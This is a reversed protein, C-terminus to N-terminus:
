LPQLFICGLKVLQFLYSILSDWYQTFRWLPTFYFCWHLFLYTGFSDFGPLFPVALLFRHAAASPSNMRDCMSQLVVAFYIGKSPAALSDMKSM